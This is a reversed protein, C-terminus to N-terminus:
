DVFLEMSIRDALHKGKNTLIYKQGQKVMTNQNIFKEVQKEFHSVFQPYKNTLTQIDIGWKTRLRILVFENYRENDSLTEHEIPLISEKIKSIYKPNHSINWSRTYKGDFSHASPGIGLYPVGMWYNTNHVAYNDPKGFNSIEYHDYGGKTLQSILMDFQSSAKEEDVPQSKGTAVFHHLATGQEVTLCYASIHPINLSQMKDMNMQWTENSTTPSGYILDASINEFGLDQAKKICNEAESANHARNMFTLDTQDFSQIGVSLRNIGITKLDTLCEVSLDDPNAELTIETNKDWTYIHSLSSFIRSMERENLLSPTGGGFYISTLVKSSLYDKRLEIEKIIADVMETRYKLSTSFHFNCYHCAQKCFPIHIYIGSMISSSISVFNYLNFSKCFPYFNVIKM